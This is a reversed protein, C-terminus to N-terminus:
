QVRHLKNDRAAVWFALTTTNVAHSNLYAVTYILFEAFDGAL